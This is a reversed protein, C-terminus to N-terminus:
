CAAVLRGIWSRAAFLRCGCSRVFSTDVVLSRISPHRAASAVLLLAVVVFRLLVCCARSCTLLPLASLAVVFSPVTCVFCRPLHTPLHPIVPRYTPLDTPRYTVVFLCVFLCLLSRCDILGDPLHVADFLRHGLCLLSTPLDTRSALNTDCTPLDTPRDTVVFLCGFM